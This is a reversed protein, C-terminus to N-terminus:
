KRVHDSKYIPSKVLVSIQETLSGLISTLDSSLSTLNAYRWISIFRWLNDVKGVFGVFRLVLSCEPIWSHINQAIKASLVSKGSGSKGHIILPSTAKSTLYSKVQDIIPFNACNQNLVQSQRNVEEIENLLRRDTGFTCLPVQFKNSHEEVITEIESSLAAELLTSFQDQQQPSVVPM